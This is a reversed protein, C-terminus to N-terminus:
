FGPLQPCSPGLELADRTGAWSTPKMPPMFRNAGATSAGYAIGKFTRIGNVTRGRVKGFTTEVIVDSAPSKAAQAPAASSERSLFALAVGAQTTQTLFRRRGLGRVLNARDRESHKGMSTSEGPPKRKAMYGHVM